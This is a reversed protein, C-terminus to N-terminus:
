QEGAQFQKRVHLMRQGVTFWSAAALVWMGIPLAAAVGLGALLTTALAIILREGREALGVNCAVGLSEARAKAYSVLQGGVLALGGATALMRDGQAVAYLVVGLLIAGDAIRDLTSDLFAGWPGSRGSMRAMTGDLLDAFVLAIIILTGALFNGNPFLLLAALVVGVTGALTVADPSIRMALLAKAIPDIVHAAIARAGGNNLM